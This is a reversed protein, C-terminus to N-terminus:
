GARRHLFKDAILDALDAVDAGPLFAQFGQENGGILAQRSGIMEVGNGANAGDGCGDEGGEDEVDVAKVRRPFEDGVEARQGDFNGAADVAIALCARWPAVDHAATAVVQDAAVQPHGGQRRDAAVRGDARQVCADDGFVRLVLSDGDPM